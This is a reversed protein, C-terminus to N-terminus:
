GRQELVLQSVEPGGPSLSLNAGRPRGGNWTADGGALLKALGQSNVSPVGIVRAIVKRHSTIVLIRGDRLSALHRSLRAKFEHIPIVSERM